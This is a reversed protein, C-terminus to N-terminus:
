HAIILADPFFSLKSKRHRFAIDKWSEKEYVAREGTYAKAIGEMGIEFTRAFMRAIQVAVPERRNADYFCAAAIRERERERERERQFSDEFEDVFRLLGGNRPRDCGGDRPGKDGEKAWQRAKEPSFVQPKLPCKRTTANVREISECRRATFRDEGNRVEQREGRGCKWREEVRGHRPSIM